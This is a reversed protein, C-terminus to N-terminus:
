VPISEAIGMFQDNLQAVDASHQKIAASGGFTSTEIRTMGAEWDTAMKASAGIVAAAADGVLEFGMALNRLGYYSQGTINTLRGLAQGAQDVGRDVGSADLRLVGTASAVVGM